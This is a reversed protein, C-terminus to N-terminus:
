NTIFSKFQSSKNRSVPVTFEVGKFHLRYGQASGSVQEINNSNVIYSRHVRIFADFDKLTNEVSTLTVRLLNKKISGLEQAYIECYNNESKIFLIAENQLKLQENKGEGVFVIENTPLTHTHKTQNINDAENIYKKLLRTQNYLVVIIIPMFGILLTISISLFYNYLVHEGVGSTDHINFLEDFFFNVTGICFIIFGIHVIEKGVTWNSDSFYNKFFLPLISSVFFSVFFTILGFGAIIFNSYNVIDDFPKFVLLFFYVFSGVLLSIVFNAKLDKNCPYPKKLVKLVLM